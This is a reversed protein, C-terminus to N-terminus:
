NDLVISVDHASFQKYCYSCACVVFIRLVALRPSGCGTGKESSLYAGNVHMIVAVMGTGESNFQM